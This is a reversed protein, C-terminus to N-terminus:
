TVWWTTCPQRRQFSVRCPTACHRIFLQFHSMAQQFCYKGEASWNDNLPQYKSGDKSLQIDRHRQFLPHWGSNTRQKDSTIPCSSMLINLLLWGSHMSLFFFGWCIQLTSICQQSQNGTGMSILSCIIIIVSQYKVQNTWSLHLHCRKHEKTHWPRGQCWVEM